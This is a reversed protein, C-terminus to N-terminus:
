SAAAPQQAVRRGYRWVGLWTIYNVFLMLALWLMTKVGDDSGAPLASIISLARKINLLSFALQWVGLVWSFPRWLAPLPANLNFGYAVLGVATLGAIVFAPVIIARVIPSQAVVGHLIMYGTLLVGFLLFLCYLVAFAKWM